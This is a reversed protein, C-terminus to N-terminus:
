FSLFFFFFISINMNGIKFHLVWLSHYGDTPLKLDFESDLSVRVRVCVCTCVTELQRQEKGPEM